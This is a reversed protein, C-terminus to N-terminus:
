AAALFPTVLGMATTARFCRRSRPTRNRLRSQRLAALIAAAIMALLTPGGQTVIVMAITTLTTGLRSLQPSQPRSCDTGPAFRPSKRRVVGNVGVPRRDVRAQAPQGWRFGRLESCSFSLLAVCSQIVTPRQLEPCLSQENPQTIGGM